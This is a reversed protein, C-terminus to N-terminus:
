SCIYISKDIVMNNFSIAFCGCYGSLGCVTVLWDGLWTGYHQLGMVMNNCFIYGWWTGDLGALM